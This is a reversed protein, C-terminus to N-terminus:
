ASNALRQQLNVLMSATAGWIRYHQYQFEILQRSKGRYDVEFTRANAPNLLFALPVEFVEDVENPDAQAVFATSINAVVPYVHFGTVTLFSDLYGIVRVDQPQLGIEEHAERLATAVPDRDEAEMRGGPFSIQGAHHKLVETRRTLVVNWAADRQVFAILVAAPRIAKGQDPLLDILESQNWPPAMPAVAAAHLAQPLQQQMWDPHLLEM